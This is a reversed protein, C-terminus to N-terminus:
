RSKRDPPPSVSLVRGRRKQRQKDIVYCEPDHPLALLSASLCNDTKSRVRLFVVQLGTLSSSSSCSGLRFSMWQWGQPFINISAPDQRGMHWSMATKGHCMQHNSGFPGTLKLIPSGPTESQEVIFLIWWSEWVCVRM